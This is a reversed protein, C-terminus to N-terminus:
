KIRNGLESITRAYKTRSISQILKNTRTRCVSSQRFWNFFRQDHVMINTGAMYDNHRTMMTSNVLGWDHFYMPKIFMIKASFRSTSDRLGQPRM